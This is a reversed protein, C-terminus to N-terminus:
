APKKANENEEISLLEPEKFMPYNVKAMNATELIEAWEKVLEIPIKFANAITSFKLSKYQQLAKYLLDIETENEERRLNIHISEDQKIPIVRTQLIKLVILLIIIAWELILIIKSFPSIAKYNTQLEEGIEYKGISFGSIGESAIGSIGTGFVAVQFFTHAISILLLFSIIIGLISIKRKKIM